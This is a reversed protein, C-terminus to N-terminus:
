RYYPSSRISALHPLRTKLLSTTSQSFAFHARWATGRKAWKEKASEGGNKQFGDEDQFGYDIWRILSGSVYQTISLRHEDPGIDINSHLIVASPFLITRHPPFQIIIGLSELVIHGGKTYDFNGLSTIAIWAWPLNARDFHPVTIVQPGINVTAAPYVGPLLPKFTPRRRSSTGDYHLFFDNLKKEIAKYAKPCYTAFCGAVSHSLYTQLWLSYASSGFGM